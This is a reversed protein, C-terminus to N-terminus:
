KEKRKRPSINDENILLYYKDTKDVEGSEVTFPRKNELIQPLNVGFENKCIERIGDALRSGLVKTFGLNIKSGDKSLRIKCYHNILRDIYDKTTKAQSLDDLLDQLQPERKTKYKELEKPIKIKIAEIETLFTNLEIEIELKVNQLRMMTKAYKDAEPLNDKTREEDSKKSLNTILQSLEAKDKPPTIIVFQTENQITGGKIDRQKEMKLQEAFHKIFLDKYKYHVEEIREGDQKFYRPM